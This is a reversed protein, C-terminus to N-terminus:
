KTDRILTKIDKRLETIADKIDRLQENTAERAERAAAMDDHRQKELRTIAAANLSIKAELRILWAMAGFAAVIIGWFEKIVDSM